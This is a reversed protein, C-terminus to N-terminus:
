NKELIEKIEQAIKQMELLFIGVENSATLVAFLAKPGAGVVFIEGTKSEIIVRDPIGKGFEISARESAGVVTCIMAAAAESNQNTPMNDWILLGDRSIVLAAEIGDISALGKKVAEELLEPIEAM